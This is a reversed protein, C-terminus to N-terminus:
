AAAPRAVVRAPAGDSGEINLALFMADLRQGSLRRVNAVQEAIVVGHGLLWHHVPWDFGAPRKHTPLDPTGFDVALLKVRKEVLWDAAAASLSPHDHYRDTGVLAPWGTDLILIDGPELAPKLPILDAPEIVQLPKVELRWVVGSGFLRDLPVEHMAPADAVFHNPADVHTGTHVVMHMETLNMPDKPKERVKPFRPPEIIPIRPVREGLPHTLDVWDGAGSSLRAPPVELWGRWGTSVKSASDCM